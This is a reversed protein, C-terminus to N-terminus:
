ISGHTYNKRYYRAFIDLVYLDLHLPWESWLKKLKKYEEIFNALNLLNQQLSLGSSWSIKRSTAAEHNRNETISKYTCFPIWSTQRSADHIIPRNWVPSVTASTSSVTFFVTSGPPSSAAPSWFYLSRWNPSTVLHL